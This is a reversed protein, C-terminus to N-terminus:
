NLCFKEINGSSEHEVFVDTEVIWLPIYQEGM